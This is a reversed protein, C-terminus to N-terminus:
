EVKKRDGGNILGQLINGKEEKKEKVKAVRGNVGKREVAM